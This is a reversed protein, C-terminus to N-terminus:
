DKAVMDELQHRILGPLEHVSSNSYDKAITAKLCAQVPKDLNKRLEGLLSPAAVIVLFRYGKGGDLDTLLQSSLERAWKQEQIDHQSTHPEVGASRAGAGKIQTRGRDDSILDQTRARGAANELALVPEFIRFEENTAFFSAHADDAVLIRIEEM